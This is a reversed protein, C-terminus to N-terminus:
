ASLGPNTSGEDASRWEAAESTLLMQPVNSRDVKSVEVAVFFSV